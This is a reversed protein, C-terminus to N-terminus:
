GKVPRELKLRASEDGSEIRLIRHRRDEETLQVFIQLNEMDSDLAPELVNNETVNVTDQVLACVGAANECGWRAPNFKKGFYKYYYFPLNEMTIGPREDDNVDHKFGHALLHLRGRLTLMTWEDFKFKQVLPMGGGVDLVDEVDFPDLAEIDVPPTEEEEKEEEEEVEMPKAEEEKKEEEKGEAAAKAKREEEEKAKKEAAKGM